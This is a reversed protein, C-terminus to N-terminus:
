PASEAVEIDIYCFDNGCQEQCVCERGNVEYLRFYPRGKRVEFRFRGETRRERLPEGAWAMDPVGELTGYLDFAQAGRPEVKGRLALWHPGRAVRGQLQITGDRNEFSVTGTRAMDTVRNVGLKHLGRYPQAPDPAAIQTRAIPPADAPAVSPEVANPAEIAAAAAGPVPPPTPATPEGRACACILLLLTWGDVARM